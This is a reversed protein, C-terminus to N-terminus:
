EVIKGFDAVLCCLVAIQKLIGLRAARLQEDEAMVMVANFFDDVAPRIQALMILSQGYDRNDVVNQINGKLQGCINYLTKESDDILVEAKVETKDWKRSLNHSRNFVVMFDAFHSSTKFEQVTRARLMIDNLDVSPVSLVADIVDYSIGRDLAVGRLRQMVFDM